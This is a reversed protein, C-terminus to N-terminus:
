CQEPVPHQCYWGSPTINTPMRANCFVDITSQSDLLIWSAPIGAKHQMNCLVDEQVFIVGEYEVDDFQGPFDDEKDKDTETEDDDDDHKEHVECIMEETKAKDDSHGSELQRADDQEEESYQEAEVSSDEDLILM